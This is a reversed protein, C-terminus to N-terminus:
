GAKVMFMPVTMVRQKHGFKKIVDVLEKLSVEPSLQADSELTLPGDLDHKEGDYLLIVPMDQKMQKLRRLVSLADISPSSINLIVLDAQADATRRELNGTPLSTGVIEFDRVQDLWLSLTVLSLRDSDIIFIKTPPTMKNGELVRLGNQPPHDKM